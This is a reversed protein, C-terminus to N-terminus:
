KVQDSVNFSVAGMDKVLIGIGITRRGQRLSVGQVKVTLAEGKRMLVSNETSVDEFGAILDGLIFQCQKPPIPKRDVKLPQAGIVRVPGLENKIQFEFGADTNTLSGKVYLARLLFEPIKAM